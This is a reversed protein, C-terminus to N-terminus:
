KTVVKPTVNLNKPPQYYTKAAITLSFAGETGSLQMTSIKIPRIAHEIADVSQQIQTYNGSIGLQFPIEVPRPAASSAIDAQAADDVGSLTTLKVGRDTMLKELSTVLAPFDYQSPLADLVIKSNGGDQNGTGTSSGGIINTSAGDFATYSAKLSNVAAVDAKAIKLAASQQSIVHSQYSSQSLLAKVAVLSFATFISAISVIIVISSNAKDIQIQKASKTIKAM